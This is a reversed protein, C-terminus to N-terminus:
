LSRCLNTLGACVLLSRYLNTLGASVLPSKHSRCLGASVQLSWCLGASIQSVQLSWCFGASVLQYWKIHLEKLTYRITNNYFVMIRTTKLQQPQGSWDLTKGWLRHKDWVRVQTWSWMCLERNDKGWSCLSSMVLQNTRGLVFMM